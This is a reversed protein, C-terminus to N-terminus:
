LKHVLDSLKNRPICTPQPHILHLKVCSSGIATIHVYYIFDQMALLYNKWIPVFKKHTTTTYYCFITVMVFLM